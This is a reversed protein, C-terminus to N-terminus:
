KCDQMQKIYKDYNVSDCWHSQVSPSMFHKDCHWEDKGAKHGIYPKEAHYLEHAMLMVKQIHSAGYWYNKNISVQADFFPLVWSAQGVTTKGADPHEPVEEFFGIYKANGLCGKSLFKVEDVINKLHPHVGKHDPTLRFVKSLQSCGNLLGLLLLVRIFADIPKM